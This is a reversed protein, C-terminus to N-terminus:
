KSGATERAWRYARLAKGPTKMTWVRSAGPLPVLRGKDPLSRHTLNSSASVAWAKSIPRDM